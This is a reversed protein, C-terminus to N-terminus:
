LLRLALTQSTKGLGMDYAPVGALQHQRMFQMWNVGPQQYDSLTAQLGVPPADPPLGTHGSLRQALKYVANEVDFVWRRDDVER